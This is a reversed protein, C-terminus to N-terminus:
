WANVALFLPVLVVFPIFPVPRFSIPGEGNREM